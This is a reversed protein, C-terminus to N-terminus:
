NKILCNMKVAHRPFSAQGFLSNKRSASTPNGFFQEKQAARFSDNELFGREADRFLKFKAWNQAEADRLVKTAGFSISGRSAFGRVKSFSRKRAACFALNQRNKCFSRNEFIVGEAHRLFVMKKLLLTEAHRLLAIKGLILAEAHRPLMEKRVASTRRRASSRFRLFGAHPTPRQCQM